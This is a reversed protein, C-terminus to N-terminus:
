ETVSCTGSRPSAAALQWRRSTPFSSTSSCWVFIKRLALSHGLARLTFHLRLGDAAFYVILLAAMPLLTQLSLLRSDFQLSKGAFKDYVTWTGLGAFAVFVLTFAALRRISTGSASSASPPSSRLPM